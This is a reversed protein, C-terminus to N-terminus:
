TSIVVDGSALNKKWNHIVTTFFGYEAFDPRQHLNQVNKQMVNSPVAKQQNHV